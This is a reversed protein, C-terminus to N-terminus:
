SATRSRSRTTARRRRPPEEIATQAPRSEDYHLHERMKRDAVSPDRSMIAKVLQEHFDRPHPLSQNRIFKTTLLARMSTRKLTDELSTFGTARALKLHFEVHLLTGRAEDHDIDNMWRDILRSEELLMKLTEDTAHEALLRAGHREVAERLVFENRLSPEDLNIVRTGYMEKTEVLGDSSLRALAENVISLSVGFKKVLDRRVLHVGPAYGGSTITRKLEGYVRSSKTQFPDEM